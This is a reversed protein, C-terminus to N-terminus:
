ETHNKIIKKPNLTAGLKLYVGDINLSPKNLVYRYGIGTRLNLWPWLSYETHLGWETPYVWEKRNELAILPSSNNLQGVGGHAYTCFAWKNRRFFYFEESFGIFNLRVMNPPKNGIYFLTSNLTLVHKVKEGYAVGAYIGYITTFDDLIFTRRNNM